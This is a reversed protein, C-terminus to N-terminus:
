QHKLLDIYKKREPSKLPYKINYESHKSNFHRKVNYEKHVSISEKCILCLSSSGPGKPSLIVFFEHIWNDDFQRNEEHVNRKRSLKAPMPGRHDSSPAAAM